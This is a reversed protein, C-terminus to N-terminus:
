QLLYLIPCFKTLRYSSKQQKFHYLYYLYYKKVKEHAKSKETSGSITKLKKITGSM